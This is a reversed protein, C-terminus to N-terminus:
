YSASAVGVLPKLSGSQPVVNAPCAECGLAPGYTWGVKSVETVCSTYSGRGAWVALQAMSQEGTLKTQAVPTSDPRLCTLTNPPKSFYTGVWM